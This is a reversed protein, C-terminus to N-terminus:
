WGIGRCYRQHRSRPRSASAVAYLGAAATLRRLGLRHIAVHVLPRGPLVIAFPPKGAFPPCPLGPACSRSCFRRRTALALLLGARGAVTALWVTPRKRSLWRRRRRPM